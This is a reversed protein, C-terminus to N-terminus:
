VSAGAQPAPTSEPADDHHHDHRAHHHHCGCHRYSRHQPYGHKRYYRERSIVAILAFLCLTGFVIGFM